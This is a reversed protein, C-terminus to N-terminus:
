KPGNKLVNFLYWSYHEIMIRLSTEFFLQLMLSFWYKVNTVPASFPSGSSASLRTATSASACCTRAHEPLM